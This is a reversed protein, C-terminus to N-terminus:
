MFTFVLWIGLNNGCGFIVTKDVRVAAVLAFTEQDNNKDMEYIWKEEKV